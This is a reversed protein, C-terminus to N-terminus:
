RGVGATVTVYQVQTITVPVCRYHSTTLASSPSSVSTGPILSAPSATSGTPRPIVAIDTLPYSSSPSSIGTQSTTDQSDLTTSPAAVSTYGSSITSIINTATDDTQTSEENADPSIFTTADRTMSSSFTGVIASSISYEPTASTVTGIVYTTMTHSMPIQLNSSWQADTINYAYPSPLRMVDPLLSGGTTCELPGGTTGNMVYEGETFDWLRDNTANWGLERGLLYQVQDLTLEMVCGARIQKAAAEDESLNSYILLSSDAGGGQSSLPWNVTQNPPSPFVSTSPCLPFSSQLKAQDTSPVILQSLIICGSHTSIPSSSKPGTINMHWSGPQHAHVGFPVALAMLALLPNFLSLM